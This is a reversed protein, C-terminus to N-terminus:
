LQKSLELAVAIEGAALFRDAKHLLDRFKRKKSRAVKSWVAGGPRFPATIYAFRRHGDITSTHAQDCALVRQAKHAKADKPKCTPKAKSRMIPRGDVYVLGYTTKHAGTATRGLSRASYAAHRCIIGAGVEDREVKHALKRIRDDRYSLDSKCTEDFLKNALDREM